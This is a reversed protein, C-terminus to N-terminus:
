CSLRSTLQPNRRAIGTGLGERLEKDGEQVGYRSIPVCFGDYVYPKIRFSDATVATLWVDNEVNM